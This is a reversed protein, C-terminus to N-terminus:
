QNGNGPYRGKGCPNKVMGLQIALQTLRAVDHIGTRRMLAARHYEVTKPSLGMELAIGITTEGEAILRLVQQQREPLDTALKVPRPNM